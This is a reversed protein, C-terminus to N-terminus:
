AAAAFAETGQCPPRALPGPPRPGDGWGLTAWGATHALNSPGRRVRRCYKPNELHATSPGVALDRFPRATTPRYKLASQHWAHESNVGTSSLSYMACIAQPASWNSTTKTERHQSAFAIFYWLKSISHSDIHCLAFSSTPIFAHLIASIAFNPMEVMGARTSRSSRPRTIQKSAHPHTSALGFPFANGHHSVAPTGM